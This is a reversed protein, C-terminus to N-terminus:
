KSVRRRVLRANLDTIFGDISSFALDPFIYFLPQGNQVNDLIDAKGVPIAGLGELALVPMTCLRIGNQGTRKFVAAGAWAQVKKGFAAPTLLGLQGPKAHITWRIHNPLCRSIPDFPQDRDSKIEAVYNITKEWVERLMHVRLHEKDSLQEFPEFLHGTMERYIQCFQEQPLLRIHDLTQYNITYVLSKLLSVFRGEPNNREPDPDSRAAARLTEPMNYPDFLRWMVEKYQQRATERLLRKNKHASQPLNERLLTPYDLLYIYEELKLKGIWSRLFHKYSSIVAEPENTLKNFRGGDSVIAFRALPSRLDPRAEKYIIEIALVIEFLCLIFNVEALDPLQGRNKLPCSFKYPLAPIVMDIPQASEIRQAVTRSLEHRSCTERAGSCFQRDFLVETILDAPDPQHSRDIGHKSCSQTARIQAAHLRELAFNRSARLLTPILGEELIPYSIDVLRASYDDQSFLNFRLDRNLDHMFHSSIIAEEVRDLGPSYALRSAKKTQPPQQSLHGDQTSENVVIGKWLALM